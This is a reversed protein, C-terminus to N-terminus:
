APDEEDPEPEDSPDALDAASLHCTTVWDRYDDDTALRHSIDTM